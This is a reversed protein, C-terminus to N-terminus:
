CPWSPPSPPAPVLDPCRLRRRRLWNLFDSSDILAGPALLAYEAGFRRMLGCTLSSTFHVQALIPLAILPVHLFKNTINDAQFGFILVLTALLATMSGPAFRPMLATKFWARGRGAIFCRRLVISAALSIVIFILGSYLLIDFPVEPNSAGSVLFRVVPAFLFLMLLDKVSVQVLTYAPDGASLYSWVFVMATCPAAALIPRESM